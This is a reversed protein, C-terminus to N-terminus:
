WSCRLLRGLRHPGAWDACFPTLLVIPSCVCAFLAFTCEFSDCVQYKADTEGIIAEIPGLLEGRSSSYVLKIASPEYESEFVDVLGGVGRKCGRKLICDPDIKRIKRNRADCIFLASTDADYALGRPTNLSPSTCTLM